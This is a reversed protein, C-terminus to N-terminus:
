SNLIGIFTELIKQKNANEKAKEEQEQMYKITSIAEDIATRKFVGHDQCYTKSNQKALKHKSRPENCSECIENFLNHKKILHLLLEKNM